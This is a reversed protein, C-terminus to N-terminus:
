QTTTSVKILPSVFTVICIGKFRMVMIVRSQLPMSRKRAREKEEGKEGKRGGLTM